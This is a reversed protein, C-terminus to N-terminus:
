YMTEILEAYMKAAVNRKLKMTPTLTGDGLSFDRPLVALKQVVQANSTTATNGAKRGDELYKAWLPDKTAEEVTTATSGIRRGEYLADAALVNTPEGTAPDVNTKFSVLMTLYKRQDGIVMCNSLALMSTKMETEILVPPINEGGATIILEKKRGTIRMFGSPGNLVRPDNDDDFEAVDGSHLFGESDITDRTQQEMYMYGMFIHRGRYCLEGDEAIKSETGVMGRGCTGVKWHNPDAITHPGSCESQGFVEYIPIDLSAFYWLCDQSIPAAGVFCGRCESLGLAEKIKSLVIANACGYCMPAGGGAGYQQRKAKETAL